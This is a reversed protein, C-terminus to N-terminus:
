AIDVDILRNTVFQLQSNIVEDKMSIRSNYAGIPPSTILDSLLNQM